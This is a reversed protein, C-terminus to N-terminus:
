SLDDNVERLPDPGTQLRAEEHTGAPMSTDYGHRLSDEGDAVGGQKSAPMAAQDGQRLRKVLDLLERWVKSCQLALDGPAPGALIVRYVRDRRPM